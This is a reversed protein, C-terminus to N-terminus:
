MKLMIVLSKLQCEYIRGSQMKALEKENGKFFFFCFRFTGLNEIGKLPRVVYMVRVLARMFLEM